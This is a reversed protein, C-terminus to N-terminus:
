KVIINIPTNNKILIIFNEMIETNNRNFSNNILNNLGLIFQYQYLNYNKSFNFIPKFTNM